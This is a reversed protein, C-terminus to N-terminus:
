SKLLRVGGSGTGITVSGRGDGITGVFHDRELRRAQVPFGLDIDGSGTEVEVQAGFSEPVVLTVNGSGTDIDIRDADALV